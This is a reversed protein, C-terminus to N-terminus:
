IHRCFIYATHLICHPVALTTPIVIIIQLTFIIGFSGLLLSGVASKQKQVGYQQIQFSLFVHPMLRFNDLGTQTM